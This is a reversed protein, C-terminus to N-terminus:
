SQRLQRELSIGLRDMRRYLAQRSLGLEAAARAVVGAHTELAHIIARREAETDENGIVRAGPESVPHHPPRVTHAANSADARGLDGPEVVGGHCLLIARQFRNQLERVNGPWDHGLMSRVAAASFRTPPSPNVALTAGSRSPDAAVGTISTGTVGGTAGPAAGSAPNAANRAESLAEGLRAAQGLAALFHEALPLVDESRERLPSIRIEIVNLRFLLDERFSGAAIMQRLNANTASVIRVD